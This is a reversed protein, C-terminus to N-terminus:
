RKILYAKHWATCNRKKGEKKREKKKKRSFSINSHSIRSKSHIHKLALQQNMSFSQVFNERKM